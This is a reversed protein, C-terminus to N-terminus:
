VTTPKAKGAILLAVLGIVVMAAGLWIFLGHIGLALRLPNTVVPCLFEGIYASTYVLGIAPSRMHEPSRTVAASLLMPLILGGGLGAIAGGVMTLPAAHSLGIVVDGAGLLTAILAFLAPQSLRQRMAGTSAAGIVSTIAGSLLIGAQGAPTTIGNAANLIALQFSSMYQMTYLAASLLYIPWLLRIAAAQVTRSPVPIGSPAARDVKPLCLLALGLIILAFLYLFGTARWGGLQGAAGAAVVSIIAGGYGIASAYGILKVRRVEDYTTSILTVLATQTTAISLGLIFRSALIAWVDDLYLIASGAIAYLALAAYLGRRAGVAYLIAGGLLGGAIVGAGPTSAIMQSVFVGGSRDAFHRAILPLVPSLATFVIAMMVSGSLLVASAGADKWRPRVVDM